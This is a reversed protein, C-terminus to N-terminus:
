RDARAEGGSADAAPDAPRRAVGRIHAIRPRTGFPSFAFRERAEVRFGAREIAGGTDRSLHCGGSVRSWLLADAARQVRALGPRRSAVHEYFRLEGGARIVRHLEALAAPLDEHTLHQYTNRAYVPVTRRDM